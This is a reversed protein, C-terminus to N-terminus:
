EKCWVQLLENEKLGLTLRTNQCDSKSIRSWEAATGDNLAVLAWAASGSNELLTKVKQDGIGSISCLMAEAPSQLLIDRKQRKVKIAGRDMQALYVLAPAYDSDSERWLVRVGIDQVKLLAGQISNWAWNTVKGALVVKGQKLVPHGTIVLYAWNTATTMDHCQSFLRADSISGLLDSFTKREVVINANDSAALWADGCPLETITTQVDFSLSKIWEPERSDLIVAQLKNM